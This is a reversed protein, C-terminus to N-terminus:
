FTPPTNIWLLRTEGGARNRWRHPLTSPFTLADGARLRYPAHDGVWFTVAGELVFVFEEGRHSYGGQSSSGPALVFLQPELQVSSAAALQEVRVGSLELASRQTARVLYGSGSPAFLDVLTVGYAATLRQLTAMSVGTADREISSLFSVSLGTRQAVERLSLGHQQRLARVRRGDLQRQRARARSPAPPPDAGIAAPLLRRIGPASVREGRMRRVRRLVDVDDASYLRQGSPTRQPQVLGQREWARLTSPSSGVLRAAEGIRYTPGRRREGRDTATGPAHLPLSM